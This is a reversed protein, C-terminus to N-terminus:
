VGDGLGREGKKAYLAELAIRLEIFKDRVGKQGMSNAWRRIALDLRAGYGDSSAAATRSACIDIATRLDRETIEKTASSLSEVRYSGGAGVSSM